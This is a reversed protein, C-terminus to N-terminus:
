EKDINAWAVTPALKGKTPSLANIITNWDATYNSGKHQVAFSQYRNYSSFNKLYDGVLELSEEPESVGVTILNSLDIVTSPYITPDLISDIVATAMGVKPNSRMADTNLLISERIGLNTLEVNDLDPKYMIILDGDKIYFNFNYEKGLSKLADLFTRHFSRYMREFVQDVQGEPFSLYKIEGSFGVAAACQRICSKISPSAVVVKIPKQLNEILENSFCFISTIRNPLLLEDVANNVYYRHILTHEKGEHLQVKITVYRKGSMLSTVAENNLNYVVVKAKNYNPIQRIDFDIRLNKVELILGGKTLSDHVQLTIKQKLAM